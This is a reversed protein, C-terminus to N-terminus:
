QGDKAEAFKRHAEELLARAEQRKKTLAEVTVVSDLKAQAVVGPRHAGAPPRQGAQDRSTTKVLELVSPYAVEFSRFVLKQANTLHASDCAHFEMGFHEVAGLLDQSPREVDLGAIIAVGARDLPEL